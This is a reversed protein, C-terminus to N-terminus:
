PADCGRVWFQLFASFDSHDVVGNPLSEAARGVIDAAPAQALWSNLFFLYDAVDVVGDPIGVDFGTTSVDAKSCPAVDLAM